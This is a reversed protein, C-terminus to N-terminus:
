KQIEFRQAVENLDYSNKGEAIVQRAINIKNLINWLLIGVVKENKLYFVAGRNTNIDNKTLDSGNSFVGVTTLASDILGVSQFSLEPEVISSFMSQHAFCKRKGVMNEGALRGSAMAHDYNAETEGGFNGPWFLADGAVYLHPLAELNDNVVFGFNQNSVKLGSTRALAVDPQSGLAVIVHDVVLMKGNRLGLKLKSNEMVVSDIQTNSMVFLGYEALRKKIWESLYRPLTAGMNADEHFIQFIRVKKTTSAYKTLALALETARFGGGVVAVSESKDVIGKISHFDNLNRLFSIRSRIRRPATQFVVLNRPESGTAILCEDYEIETGDDLVLKRERLKLQKATRNSLLYVGGDSESLFELPDCYFDSREFFVNPDLHDTNSNGSLWLEKSLPPRMYPPHTENSVVLVKANPVHEKIASFASWSATGGGIILYPVKEPLVLPSIMKRHNDDDNVTETKVIITEEVSYFQKILFALGVACIGVAAAAVWLRKNRDPNISTLPEKSGKASKNKAKELLEHNPSPINQEKNTECLVDMMQPTRQFFNFQTFDKLSKRLFERRDILEPPKVPEVKDESLTTEKKNDVIPINKCIRDGSSVTLSPIVSFKKEFPARPKLTAKIEGFIPSQDAASRKENRIESFLENRNGNEKRAKTFFQEFDTCKPIKTEDVKKKAFYVRCGSTFLFRHPFPTPDAIIIDEDTSTIDLTVISDTPSYPSNALTTLEVSHVSELIDTLKIVNLLKAAELFKPIRERHVFVEGHYILDVVMQLDNYEIDKLVVIPHQCPNSIFISAFYTSSATLIVRHAQIQGGEAVLTVDALSGKHLLWSFTSRFRSIQNLWSLSIKEKSGESM